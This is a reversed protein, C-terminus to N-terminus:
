FYLAWYFASIPGNLPCLEYSTCWIKRQQTPKAIATISKAPQVQNESVLIQIETMQSQILSTSVKFITTAPDLLIKLKRLAHLNLAVGESDFSSQVITSM